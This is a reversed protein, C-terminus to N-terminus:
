TGFMGDFLNLEKLLPLLDLLQMMRLAEDAKQQREPRLHPKIARILQTNKDDKKSNLKALTPALKMLMGMDLGGLDLGGSSNQQGDPEGSAGHEELFQDLMSGLQDSPPAPAATQMAPKTESGSSEGQNMGFMQAMAQLKQRGEESGLIEQLQNMLDDM